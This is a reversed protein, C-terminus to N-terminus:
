PPTFVVNAPWVPVSIRSSDWRQSLSSIVTPECLVSKRRGQCGDVVTIALPVLEAPKEV